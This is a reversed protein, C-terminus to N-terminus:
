KMGRMKFTLVKRSRSQTRGNGHIVLVARNSREMVDQSVSGFIMKKFLSRGRSGMCILDADFREAAQCIATAPEHIGEYMHGVSAVAASALARELNDIVPLLDRVLAEKQAIARRDIEQATRKKFNEFDTALRLHREEGTALERQLAVTYKSEAEAMQAASVEHSPVPKNAKEIPGGSQVERAVVDAPIMQKYM